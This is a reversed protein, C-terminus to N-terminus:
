DVVEFRQTKAVKAIFFYAGIFAYLGKRLFRM